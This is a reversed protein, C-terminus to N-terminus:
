CWQLSWETLVLVPYLNHSFCIMCMSHMCRKYVSVVYRRFRRYTEQEQMLLISRLEQFEDQLFESFGVYLSWNEAMSQDNYLVALRDDEMALQRNPIGQHEVDHVLASFVM